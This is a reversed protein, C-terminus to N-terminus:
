IFEYRLRTPAPIHPKLKQEYGIWVSLLGWVIWFLIFPGVSEMLSVEVDSAQGVQSINYLCILFVACIVITILIRKLKQGATQRLFWKRDKITEPDQGPKRGVVMGLYDWLLAYHIDDYPYDEPYFSPEKKETYTLFAFTQFIVVIPVFIGHLAAKFFRGWAFTRAIRFNKLSLIPNPIIDPPLDETKQNNSHKSFPM